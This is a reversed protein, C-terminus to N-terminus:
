LMGRAVTVLRGVAEEARSALRRANGEAPLPEGLAIAVRTVPAQLLRRAHAGFPEQFYVAHPSQYALGVPQVVGGTRLVALFAGPHFPRVPDDPWTTGEPFVGLTRGARLREVMQRVATAGSSASQRDVFLTGAMRALAGVVPWRGLDDRSLLHGGFAALLVLIDVMSRHNSVVLRGGPADEWPPLSGRQVRQNHGRGVIRDDIVLVSGIPIGGEALEAEAERLAAELFPDKM